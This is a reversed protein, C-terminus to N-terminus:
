LMRHDGAVYADHRQVPVGFTVDPEPNFDVTARVTLIMKNEIHGRNMM